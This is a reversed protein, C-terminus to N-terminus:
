KINKVILKKKLLLMNYGFSSLSFWIKSYETLKLKILETEIKNYLTKEYNCFCFIRILLLYM